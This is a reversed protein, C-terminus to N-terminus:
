TEQCFPYTVIDATYCSWAQWSNSTSVNGNAVYLWSSSSGGCGVHVTWSGTIGSRSFGQDFGSGSRTAFGSGGSAAIWVGEVDEQDICTVRGSVTISAQAPTEVIVLITSFALSAAALSIARRLINM